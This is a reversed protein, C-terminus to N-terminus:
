QEIAFSILRFLNSPQNTNSVGCDYFSGGGFSLGIQAVNAVCNSWGQAYFPDNGWRGLGDSWLSPDLPAQLTFTGTLGPLNTWGTPANCWWFNTSWRSSQASTYITQTSTFYLRVNAPRVRSTNWTAWGGFVYNQDGTVECVATLRKGTLNGYLANTITLMVTQGQPNYQTFYMGPSECSLLGNTWVYAGTLRRATVNWDHAQVSLALLLPLLFKM